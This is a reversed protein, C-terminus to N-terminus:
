KNVDILMTEDFHLQWGLIKCLELELQNLCQVSVLTAKMFYTGSIDVDDECFKLALRLAVLMFRGRQPRYLVRDKHTQLTRVLYLISVRVAEFAIDHEFKRGNYEEYLQYRTLMCFVPYIMSLMTENRYGTFSMFSDRMNQKLRESVLVPGKMNEVRNHQLEDLETDVWQLIEQLKKLRLTEIMPEM